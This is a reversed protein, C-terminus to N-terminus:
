SWTTSPCIKKIGRGNPKEQLNPLYESSWRKWFEQVNRQILQWDLRNLKVDTIDLDPVSTLPEGVSFNGPTLPQYDAPDSSMPTLPRSNLIAEVQALVTTFEEFTFMLQGIIRKLHFKCSKIGAEWLGGMHLSRPPIFSWQINNESVFQQFKSHEVEKRIFGFVEKLERNAGVFNTGNDSHIQQPCGRRAVFRRLTALFAATTLESVAELHIAKTAFCVFLAVYSKTTKRGRGKNVLTVIPGAFDVGTVFFPRSPQVRATPLSGMIQSVPTPNAKYCVICKHFIRRALNRGNLPWYRTRVAALLAQPGVHLLRLHEREVLLNTLRHTDPLVIQHQQQFGVKARQLRGGVRILGNKDLFPDLSLLKSSSRIVEGKRLKEIEDTFASAQVHKLLLETASNLEGPSLSGTEREEPKKHCNKIFRQCYALLREMKSISSYVRTFDEFFQNMQCRAVNVIIARKRKAEANIIGQVEDSHNLEEPSSHTDERSQLWSPGAWWLANNELKDCSVGRSVLDAPNEKGSVHGWQSYSSSAQIESVRNAVFTQWHSSEKAIWALVITSDTWLRVDGFEIRLTENVAQVLRTLLVAGYLELRPLTIKKMPAVRSKSCLLSSTKHGDGDESQIYLCAGYARESADCFGHLSLRSSEEHQIVRRPVQITGVNQIDDVYDNWENLLEQPLDADWAVDHSWSAQMILKARVIIPGIVGLPDLLKSIASLIERKTKAGIDINISFQFKENAPSWQLGLTKVSDGDDINTSPSIEQTSGRMNTVIEDINSSWKHLEFGGRLLLQQLQKCLTKAEDISNAGSLVDDVYFDRLVINAAIPFEKKEDQALKRIARIALYPACAQGYTVTNLRYEQIPEDVSFRWLIRQFYRDRPDVLIQRYMKQIDATFAIKHLRFTLLIDLLNDQVTPGVLLVDNLSKGSSSKASADFVVRLKTTTSTERIVEHHPLYVVPLESANKTPSVASMHGLEVYERMFETYRQRLIDNGKFRRELALLRKEAIQRSEELENISERSPLRVIFRGSEDRTATEFMTECKSENESVKQTSRESKIEEINWFRTVNENLSSISNRSCVLVSIDPFRRSQTPMPGALVWGLATNQLTPKDEGLKIKGTELLSQFFEAGILMEVKSPEHYFPDALKITNPISLESSDFKFSPLENTIRPVVLCHVNIRLTSHRSMVVVNCDQTVKSKMENLGVIPENIKGTRLGLSNCAAVTIFNAESASDLVVRISVPTGNAHNANVLATSMLVRKLRNLSQHMTTVNNSSTEEKNAASSTESTTPTNSNAAESSDAKDRPLHCLTNHRGSCERCSGGKCTQVFHDSRLCNLCLKLRRAENIREEITLGLFKPCFYIFHSGAKFTEFYRKWEEIKGDFTPLQIVPLKVQQSERQGGVNRNASLHRLLEAQQQLIQVLEANVGSPQEQGGSTSPTTEGRNRQSGSNVDNNQVPDPTGRKNFAKKAEQLQVLREDIEEVTITKSGDQIQVLVNEIRSVKGKVRGREKRIATLAAEM